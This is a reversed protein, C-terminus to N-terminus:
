RGGSNMEIRREQNGSRSVAIALAGRLMMLGLVIAVSVYIWRYEFFIPSSVWLYSKYLAFLGLGTMVLGSVLSLAGEARGGGSVTDRDAM